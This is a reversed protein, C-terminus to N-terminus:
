AANYTLGSKAMAPFVTVAEAETLPDGTHILDFDNADPPGSFAAWEGDPLIIYAYKKGGIDGVQRAPAQPKRITDIM